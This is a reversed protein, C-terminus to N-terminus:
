GLRPRFTLASAGRRTAGIRSARSVGLLALVDKIEDADFFGLGKYVYFPVRRRALADEFLAIAKARASCFARYRGAAGRPARRHRSRPGHRRERLLRAIEEASPRPRREDSPAAIVALRTAKARRSRACASVRRRRRLPLRRASGAGQRHHRVPRQRVRAARAGVSLEAHHRHPGTGAPRLAEIYRSAEDLVAVEADRFGYISQKRDGVIFISPQATPDVLGLGESWSRVLLEVLEWQARSTDQFEDVLVHQYRAELKYRSRSFEDMQSLLMLTRKLVDPFDLM